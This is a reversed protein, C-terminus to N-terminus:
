AAAALAVTLGTEALEVAIVILGIKVLQRNYTPRDLWSPSSSVRTQAGPLFYSLAYPSQRRLM